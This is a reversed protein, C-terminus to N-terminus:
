LDRERERRVGGFKDDTDTRPRRPCCSKSFTRTNPNSFTSRLNIIHCRSWRGAVCRCTAICGGWRRRRRVPRVPREPNHTSRASSRLSEKMGSRTQATSCIAAQNKQTTYVCLEGKRFWFSRIQEPAPRLRRANGAGRRAAGPASPCVGWLLGAGFRGPVHEKKLCFNQSSSDGLCM